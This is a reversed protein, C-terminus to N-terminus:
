DEIALEILECGIRDVQIRVYKALLDVSQVLENIFIHVIPDVPSAEGRRLSDVFPGHSSQEVRKILQLFPEAIASIQEARLKHFGVPAQKHREDSKVGNVVPVKLAVDPPDDVIGIQEAIEFIQILDLADGLRHVEVMDLTVIVDRVVVDIGGADNRDSRVLVEHDGHDLPM